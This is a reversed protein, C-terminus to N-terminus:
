QIMEGNAQQRLGSDRNCEAKNQSFSGAERRGEKSRLSDSM